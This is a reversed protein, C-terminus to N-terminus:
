CLDQSSFLRSCSFISSVYWLQFIFGVSWSIMLSHTEQSWTHFGPVSSRQIPDSQSPLWQQCARSISFECGWERVGLAFSPYHSVITSVAEWSVEAPSWGEKGKPRKQFPLRVNGSSYSPSEFSHCLLSWLKMDSHFKKLCSIHFVPHLKSGQSHFGTNPYYEAWALWDTRSRPKDNTFCHLYM